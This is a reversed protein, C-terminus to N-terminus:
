RKRWVLKWMRKVDAKTNTPLPLFYFQGCSPCSYCPMWRGGLKIRADGCKPCIFGGLFFVGLRRWFKVHEPAKGRAMLTLRGVLVVSLLVLGVFNLKSGKGELIFALNYVWFAVIVTNM